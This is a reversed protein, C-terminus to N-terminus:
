SARHLPMASEDVIGDIEVDGAREITGGGTQVVDVRGDPGPLWCDIAVPRPMRRGSAAITVRRALLRGNGQEIGVWAVEDTALDIDAGVPAVRGDIPPVVLLVSGRAQLRQRLKRMQRDAGRPPCTLLVEFGDAAVALREVWEVPGAAPIQVIREAAIGHEIAAEVGFGDVGVVALWAGDAVARSATAFALSRAAVGDFSVVHGRRLGADPFLPTLAPEVPLARDRAPVLDSTRIVSPLSAAM